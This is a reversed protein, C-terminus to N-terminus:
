KPSKATPRTAASRRRRAPPHRPRKSESKREAQPAGQANEIADSDSGVDGSPAPLRTAEHAEVHVAVAQPAERAGDQADQAGPPRPTAPEFGAAGVMKPRDTGTVSSVLQNM